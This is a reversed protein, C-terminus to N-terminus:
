FTSKQRYKLIVSYKWKLEEEYYTPVYIPMMEICQHLESESTPQLVVLEAWNDEHDTSWVFKIEPM